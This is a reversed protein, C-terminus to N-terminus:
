RIRLLPLLDEFDPGIGGMSSYSLEVVGSPDDLNELARLRVRLTGVRGGAGVPDADAFSLRGSSVANTNVMPSSFADTRGGGFALFEVREPDWDLTAGYSGLLRGTDRLDVLVEATFAEGARPRVPRLMAGSLIFQAEPEQEICLSETGCAPCSEFSQNSSGLPFAPNIPLGVEFTLIVNADISNSAGDGNADGCRALIRAEADAPIPLSIENALIILADGSNIALDGNVDGVTCETVVDITPDLSTFTPLLNEFTSAEFVSTLELDLTTSTGAAGVADFEACLVFVRDLAGTANADAFALSGTAVDDTNVVPADFPADGGSWNVFQLVAPDWTLTAGYSGLAKGSGTLDLHVCSALQSGEAPAPQTPTVSAVFGGELFRDSFDTKAFDWVKLNDSVFKDFGQADGAQGLDFEDLFDTGSPNWPTSTAGVIGDDRYVRVTDSTGDIGDIDWVIATHFPVGPTAVFQVPENPTQAISGDFRIGGFLGLGTTGDGWDLWVNGRLMVDAGNDGILGWLGFQFAVPNPVKPTIWLEITGRENLSHLVSGPCQVRNLGIATRVYGDGHQVPEYTHQTGVVSCDQGVESATIEQDSGLRNWLVLDAGALAPLTWILLVALSSRTARGLHRTSPYRSMKERGKEVENKDGQKSSLLLGSFSSLPQRGVSAGGKQPSQWPTLPPPVHHPARGPCRAVPGIAM